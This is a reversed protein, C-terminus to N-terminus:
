SLSECAIGDHNNDLGDVNNAPSGGQSEFYRLAEDRTTFDDCNYDIPDPVPAPQVPLGLQGYRWAYYHQGVNGAEVKWGEPNDPTYTLVRREFVQVLVDREVGGVAVRTWYPETLPFGTGHFPNEFPRGDVNTAGDYILGTANMFDWFVSAVTHNTEPVLIATGVGYAALNVNDGVTGARDVTQIVTWGLPIPAYGLLGSFTAYTPGTPDGADGAINVPAPGSATFSDNGVQLQGTIMEKALLGNTVFWPSGHDSKPDSIEMRSKDYYQVFRSGGPSEAYPELLPDTLANPGWMWTRSVALEAVPKDTRAWTRAFSPNTVDAAAAPQAFSMILLAVITAAWRGRRTM